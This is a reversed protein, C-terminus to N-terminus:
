TANESFMFKIIKLYLGLSKLLSKLLITVIWSYTTLIQIRAQAPRALHCLTFAFCQHDNFNEKSKEISCQWLGTINSLIRLFVHDLKRLLRASHPCFEFIMVVVWDHISKSPQLYHENSKLVVGCTRFVIFDLHKQLFYVFFETGELTRLYWANPHPNLALRIKLWRLM